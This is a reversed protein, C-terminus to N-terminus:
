LVLSLFLSLPFEPYGRESLPSLPSLISKFEDPASGDRYRGQEKITAM